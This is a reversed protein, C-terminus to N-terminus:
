KLLLRNSRVSLLASSCIAYAFLDGVSPVTRLSSRRRRSNVFPSSASYFFSPSVRGCCRDLSLLTSGVPSLFFSPPCYRERPSVLACVVLFIITCRSFTPCSGPRGRLLDTGRCGRRGHGDARVRVHVCTFCVHAGCVPVMRCWARPVGHSRSARPQRRSLMSRPTSLRERDIRTRTIDVIHVSPLTREFLRNSLHGDNRSRGNLILVCTIGLIYERSIKFRGSM